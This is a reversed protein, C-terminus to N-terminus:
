RKVFHDYYSSLSDHSSNGLSANFVNNPIESIHIYVWPLQDEFRTL